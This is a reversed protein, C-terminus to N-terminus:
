SKIDSATPASLEAYRTLAGELIDHTLEAVPRLREEHLTLAMGLGGPIVEADRPSTLMLQPWFKGHAFGSAERWRARADLRTHGVALGADGVADAYNLATTVQTAKLGFGTALSEVVGQWEKGSRGTVPRHTDDEWKQREKFDDYWVRLARARRTKRSSGSAVWLAVSASELAGRMLTWPANVTVAADDRRVMDRLTIIHDLSSVVGTSILGSVWLGRMERDDGALLSSPDHQGLGMSRDEVEEDDTLSEAIAFLPLLFGLDTGTM